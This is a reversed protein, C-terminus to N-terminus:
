KKPIGQYVMIDINTGAFAEEIAPRVQTKWNMKDLGSAIYPMAIATVDKEQCIKVAAMLANKLTTETPKEFYRRKTVLNIVPTELIAFGMHGEDWYDLPLNELRTKIRNKIDFHKNFAVAIGAGCAIDASICQIFTVDKATFLDGPIERITM